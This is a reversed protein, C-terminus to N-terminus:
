NGTSTQYLHHTQIYRIVAPSLDEAVSQGQILRDRVRTASTTMPEFPLSQVQALGANVMSELAAPITLENPPRLAVLLTVMKAIADWHSWSCFNELQDAGMIWFYTPGAPLARLTDITYTPGQREVEVTNLSFAPEDAIALAVMAARDKPSAKLTSRQWPQGAPIFQVEDLQAHSLATRALSLHARHIPDFSGGLLGIRRKDSSQSSM